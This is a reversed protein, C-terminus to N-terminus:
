PLVLREGPSVSDFTVVRGSRFEVTVSAVRDARDGLGISEDTFRASFLGNQTALHRVVPDSDDDFRVTVKANQPAEESGIALRIQREENGLRNEYLLPIGASRLILVDQDGDDDFDATLPSKPLGTVQLGARASIEEASTGTNRFLRVVAQTTDAYSCYSKVVNVGSNLSGVSIIDLLADNDFDVMTAGWGWGSHRVGFTDTLERVAGNDLSFLGNGTSGDRGYARYTPDVETCDRDEGVPAPFQSAGVVFIEPTGDATMDGIALGMGSEDDTIPFTDSGDRFTGDGNNLFVRSTNFDSIVLLDLHGDSDLDHFASLFTLISGNRQRMVVGADVTVDEFVGPKGSAGLNRFLRSHGPNDRSQLELLRSETTHLDLWGDNDYDAFVASAGNQAVGFEMSVGRSAAEDRFEGAGQNILLVASTRAYGTFFLDVLGNRDVDGVAVGNLNELNVGPAVSDSVDAFRLGGKNELFVAPGLMSSTWVIDPRGDGSFDVIAGGGSTDSTLSCPAEGSAIAGSAGSEALVDSIGSEKLAVCIRETEEEFWSPVPFEVQRFAAEQSSPTCAVLLGAGLVTALRRGAVRSTLKLAMPLM